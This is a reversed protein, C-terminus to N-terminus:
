AIQMKLIYVDHGYFESFHPCLRWSGKEQTDDDFVQRPGPRTVLCRRGPVKLWERAGHWLKRLICTERERKRLHGQCGRRPM